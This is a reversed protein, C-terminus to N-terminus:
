YQPNHIQLFTCHFPHNRWDGTGASSPIHAPNIINQLSSHSSSHNKERLYPKNTYYYNSWAAEVPTSNREQAWVLASQSREPTAAAQASCQFIHEKIQPPNTHSLSGQSPETEWCPSLEEFLSLLLEPRGGNACPTPAPGQWIHRQGLNISKIYLLIYYVYLFLYWSVIIYKRYIYKWCPKQLDQLSSFSVWKKKCFGWLKATICLNCHILFSEHEYFGM